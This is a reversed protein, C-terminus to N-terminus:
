RPAPRGPDARRAGIGRLDGDEDHWTEVAEFGLAALTPALLEDQDGGVETLLWGGPRLAVAAATAVARVLDLGDDGGDLALEPEHDRVDSPLFRLANTPVYPAVASVVDFRGARVPLPARVDAVVVPVGNRRANTAARLDRDVGIVSAGAVEACVHAAIAGAGTCLDLAAGRAPLRAAARAALDESQFRPVYVGPDVRLRHGAFTMTGTIWPLPEGRERRRLMWELSGADSAAETLEFAEAEAAVCGAAALRAVTTALARDHDPVEATEGAM